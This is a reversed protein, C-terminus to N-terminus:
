VVAGRKIKEGVRGKMRVRQRKEDESGRKNAADIM